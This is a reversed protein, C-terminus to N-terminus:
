TSAPLLTRASLTGAFNFTHNVAAQLNVASHLQTVCSFQWDDAVGKLLTNSTQLKPLSVVYAVNFIHTRDNPLVGYNNAIVVPDAVNSGSGGEGRIGLTKSFTYNMMFNIHGSQKNWSAQM